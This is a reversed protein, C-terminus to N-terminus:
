IFTDQPKQSVSCQTKGDLRISALDGYLVSFQIGEATRTLLKLVRRGGQKLSQELM